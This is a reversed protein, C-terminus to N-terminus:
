RPSLPTVRSLSLGAESLWIVGAHATQIRRLERTPWADTMRELVATKVVLQDADALEALAEQQELTRDLDMEETWNFSAWITRGTSAEEEVLRRLGETRPAKPDKEAVFRFRGERELRAVALGNRGLEDRLEDRTATPEGGHFKVLLGGRAEAVQLFAADLQHLLETTEAIAIVSDPVALYSRLQGVLTASREGRGLFDELAERRIRWSKGIKLCPLRGERCWRYVTVAGVGLYDAVEGAGM